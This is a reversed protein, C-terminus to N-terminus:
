GARTVRLVEEITTIGRGVKDWGDMRLLRMGESVAKARIAGSDARSLILDRVGESVPLLEFIGARGRYGSGGCAECGQGIRLEGEPFAGTERVVEERLAKSVNRVVSCKGCIVRVLRQALIGVLCSPLM